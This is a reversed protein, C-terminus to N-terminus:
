SNSPSATSPESPVFNKRRGWTYALLACTFAGAANALADHMDQTRTRTLWGQCFEMSLGFLTAALATRLAVALRARKAQPAAHLYTATLAAYMLAHVAKDLGQVHPMSSEVGGFFRAPMLSLASVLATMAAAPGFRLLTQRSLRATM